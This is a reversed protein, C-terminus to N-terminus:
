IFRSLLAPLATETRLIREGLTGGIAGAELLRSVEYETFGGEPGVLLLAPLQPRLPFSEGCVPHAIYVTRNLSLRPLEDDAFKKFYRHYEVTPM